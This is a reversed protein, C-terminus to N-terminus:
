KGNIVGKRLKSMIAGKQRNQKKLKHIYDFLDSVQELYSDATAGCYNDLIIEFLDGQIEQLQKNNM